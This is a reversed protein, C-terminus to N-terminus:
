KCKLTNSEQNTEIYETEIKKLRTTLEKTAEYEEQEINQIKEGLKQNQQILQEMNQSMESILLDKQTLANRLGILDKM